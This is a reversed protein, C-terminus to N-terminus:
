SAHIHEPDVIDIDAPLRHQSIRRANRLDNQEARQRAEEASHGHDLWRKICRETVLQEPTDIWISFEWLDALQKWPDESFLLYNGEFIALETDASLHGAGAISLDRSRDFVPYFVDDETRIRHVLNVFGDADFTEPAGKRARLGRADLITNDLHFGDMPVNAANIGKARLFQELEGALTSKGSAPMGAIAVLRRKGSKELESIQAVLKPLVHDYVTEPKHM